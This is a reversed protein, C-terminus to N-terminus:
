PDTNDDSQLSLPNVNLTELLQDFDAENTLSIRKKNNTKIIIRGDYTWICGHQSLGAKSRKQCRLWATKAKATKHVKDKCLILVFHCYWDSM